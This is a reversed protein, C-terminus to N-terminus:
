IDIKLIEDRSQIGSESILPAKHNKLIEWRSSLEQLPLSNPNDGYVKNTSM